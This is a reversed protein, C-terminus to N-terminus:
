VKTKVWIGFAVAVDLLGMATLLSQVAWPVSKVQRARAWVARVFAMEARIDLPEGISDSRNLAV